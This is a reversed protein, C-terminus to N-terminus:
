TVDALELRNIDRALASPVIEDPSVPPGTIGPQFLSLGETAGRQLGTGPLHDVALQDRNSLQDTLEDLGNSKLFSDREGQQIVPRQPL